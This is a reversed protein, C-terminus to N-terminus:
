ENNRWTLPEKKESYPILLFGKTQQGTGFTKANASFAVLEVKNSGLTPSATIIAPLTLESTYQFLIQEGLKPGIM